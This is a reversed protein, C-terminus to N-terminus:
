SLTPGVGSYLRGPLLQLLTVSTGTLPSSELIKVARELEEDTEGFTAKAAARLLQAKVLKQAHGAGGPFMAGAASVNELREIWDADVLEYLRGAELLHFVYASAIEPHRPHAELARAMWLDYEPDQIAEL